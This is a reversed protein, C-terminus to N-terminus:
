ERGDRGVTEFRERDRDEAGEAQRILVGADETARQDERLEAKMGAVALTHAPQAAILLTQAAPLDIRSRRPLDDLFTRGQGQDIRVVADAGHGRGPRHREGDGFCLDAANALHDHAM